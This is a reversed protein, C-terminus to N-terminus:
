GRPAGTRWRSYHLEIRRLAENLFISMAALVGVLAFLKAPEFNQSFQTTYYGIGLVSVYLEALIVGLLVGAMGLRTGTFLSPALHPLIVWRFYHRRKAGMAAAARILSEDQDQLGAVVAVLVPFVGHAFGFAIKTGAGIGFALLILPFITVKPIGYLVLILKFFLHYAYRNLGIVLGLALGLGTSLAFAVVIEVFAQGLARLIGADSLIMAMARVIQSPPSMFLPDNYIRAGAEWLALIAILYYVRVWGPHELTAAFGGPRRATKAKEVVNAV